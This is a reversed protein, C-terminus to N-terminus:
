LCPVEVLEFGDKILDPRQIYQAGTLVTEGDNFFIKDMSKINRIYAGVAIVLNNSDTIAVPGEDIDILIKM